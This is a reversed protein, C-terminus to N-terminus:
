PATLDESWDGLKSSSGNKKFGSPTFQYEGTEFTRVALGAYCWLQRRTRFREPDGIASLIFACLIPGVAPVTRLAAYCKHTRAVNVMERLALAQHKSTSDILTGVSEARLRLIGPPLM